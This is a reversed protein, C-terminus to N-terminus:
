HLTTFKTQNAVGLIKLFILLKRIHKYYIKYLKGVKIKVCLQLRITKELPTWLFIFSILLQQPLYLSALYYKTKFIQLCFTIQGISIKCIYIKTCVSIPPWYWAVLLLKYWAHLLTKRCNKFVKNRQRTQYVWKSM